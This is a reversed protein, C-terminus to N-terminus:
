SFNALSKRNRVAVSAVRAFVSDYLIFACRCNTETTLKPLYSTYALAPPRLPCRRWRLSGLFVQRPSSGVGEVPLTPVVDVTVIGEITVQVAEDLVHFAFALAGGYPAV